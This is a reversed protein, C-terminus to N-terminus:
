PHTDLFAIIKDAAFDLMEVSLGPYVGINVTMEDAAHAANVSTFVAFLASVVGPVARRCLANCSTM